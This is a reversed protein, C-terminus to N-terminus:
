DLNEGREESRHAVAGDGDAEQEAARPMLLSDDYHPFQRRRDEADELLQLASRGVESVNNYQGREVCERTFPELEATLHVNTAILACYVHICCDKEYHKELNPFLPVPVRVLDSAKEKRTFDRRDRPRSPGPTRQRM